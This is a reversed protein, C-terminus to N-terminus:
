KFAFKDIQTLEEDKSLAPGLWAKNNLRSPNKSVKFHHLTYSVQMGEGGM